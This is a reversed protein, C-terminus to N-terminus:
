SRASKDKLSPVDHIMSTVETPVMGGSAYEPSTPSGKGGSTANTNTTTKAGGFTIKPFAM